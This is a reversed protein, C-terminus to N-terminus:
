RRKIRSRYGGMIGVTAFITTLGLLGILLPILRVGWSTYNLFLGVVPVIALSLGISLAIRELMELNKTSSTIPPGTPFLAKTFSYGPLWLIFIMGLLYRTYALPYSNEPILLVVLVTIVELIMSIWYWYADETRLFVRLKTIDAKPPKALTIKGESELRLIQDIIKKNSLQTKESTLAALESVNQPNREKVIQIIIKQISEDASRESM